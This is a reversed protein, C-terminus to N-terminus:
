TAFINPGVFCAAVGFYGPLWSPSGGPGLSLVRTTPTVDPLIWSIVHVRIM